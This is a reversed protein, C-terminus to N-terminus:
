RSAEQVYLRVKAARQQGLQASMEMQWASHRSSRWERQAHSDGCVGCGGVVVSVGM